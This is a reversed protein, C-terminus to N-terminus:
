TFFHVTTVGSNVDKEIKDWVPKLARCHPCWDAFFNVFTLDHLSVVSSFDSHKLSDSSSMWDTEVIASLILFYVVFLYPNQNFKIRFFRKVLTSSKKKKM